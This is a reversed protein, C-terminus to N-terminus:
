ERGFLWDLSVDLLDALKVLNEFSPERKGREWNTYTVRNVHVLDAVEKQSLDKELRFEKLRESFIM